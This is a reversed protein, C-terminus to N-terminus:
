PTILASNYQDELELIHSTLENDHHDLKIRKDRLSDIETRLEKLKRKKESAVDVKKRTTGILIYQGRDVHFMISVRTSGSKRLTKIYKELLNLDISPNEMDTAIKSPDDIILEFRLNGESNFHEGMIEPTEMEVIVKEVYTDLRKNKSKM